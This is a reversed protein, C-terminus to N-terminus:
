AAEVMFLRNAVVDYLRHKGRVPFPVIRRINDLVWAWAGDYCACGAAPADATAQELPPQIATSPTM